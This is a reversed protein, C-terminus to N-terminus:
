YKGYVCAFWFFAFSNLPHIKYNQLKVRIELRNKTDCPSGLDWWCTASPRRPFTTASRLKQIWFIFSLAFAAYVSTMREGNQNTPFLVPTSSEKKGSRQIMSDSTVTLSMSMDGQLDLAKQRRSAKKKNQRSEWSIGLHGGFGGSWWDFNQRKRSTEM